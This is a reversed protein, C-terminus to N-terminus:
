GARQQLQSTAEAGAIETRMSEGSKTRTKSQKGKSERAAKKEVM